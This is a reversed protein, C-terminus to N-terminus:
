PCRPLSGWAMSCLGLNSCQSFLVEYSRSTFFLLLQPLPFIQWDKLLTQKIPGRTRSCICVWGSQSDAHPCCSSQHWNCLHISVPCIGFSGGATLCSCQGRSASGPWCAGHTTAATSLNVRVASTRHLFLSLM